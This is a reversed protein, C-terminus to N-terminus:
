LAEDFFAGILLVIGRSLTGVAVAVTAYILMNKAKSVKETDGGSFLFYYAALIIFITAVAILILFLWSTAVDLLSLIGSAGERSIITEPPKPELKAAKVILPLLYLLAAIKTRVFLNM